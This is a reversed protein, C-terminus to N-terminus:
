APRMILFLIAKALHLPRDINGFFNELAADHAGRVVLGLFRFVLRPRSMCATGPSRLM